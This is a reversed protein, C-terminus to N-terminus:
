TRGHELEKVKESLEKVAGVLLAILASNSLTLIETGDKNSSDVVRTVAEPLVQEVDQAILGVEKKDYETAELTQKKDYSYATLSSVKRLAGRVEVLNKKLRRDSRIYVDNANVNGTMIGAYSTLGQGHFRFDGGEWLHLTSAFRGAMHFGIGPRSDTAPNGNVEIACQYYDHGYAGSAVFRDGQKVLEFPGKQAGGEQGGIWAKSCDFNIALYGFYGAANAHAQNFVYNWSHPSTPLGEIYSGQFFGSQRRLSTDGLVSGIARGYEGLGFGAPAAGIEAATPKFGQHYVLSSNAVPSTQGAASWDLSLGGRTVKLKFSPTSNDFKKWAGDYYANCSLNSEDLSEVFAWMNGRLTAGRGAPDAKYVFTGPAFNLAGTMTDGAKAVAGVDNATPKNGEHYIKYTAGSAGSRWTLSNDAGITGGIWLRGRETGDPARWVIDAMDGASYGVLHLEGTVGLVGSVTGGTVPVAGVDAATPKSRDGYLIGQNSTRLKGTYDITAISTEGAGGTSVEFEGAANVSTYFWTSGGHFYRIKAGDAVNLLNASGRFSVVGAMEGGAISLAGVDAASLAIDSTLPKSNITRAQPVAGLVDPTPVYQETYIRAGKITVLGHTATRIDLSALFSGGIGSIVMKHDSTDGVKGGQLYVYGSDAVLRAGYGDMNQDLPGTLIGGALPLAGVAAPTPVYNTHYVTGGNVRVAGGFPNLDLIGYATAYGPDEHGSQIGFRRANFAGDAIFYLANNNVHVKGRARNNYNNGDANIANPWGNADEPHKMSLLGTEVYRSGGSLVLSGDQAYKLQVSSDAVGLPRLAVYPTVKNAGEGGSLITGHGNTADYSIGVSAKVLDGTNLLGLSQEVHGGIEDVKTAVSQAIYESFTGVTVRQEAYDGIAFSKATTGAQARVVTLTNGTAGTVKVVEVSTRDTFKQLVLYYYDGASLAPLRSADSVVVSTAAATLASALITTAFDKIVLM